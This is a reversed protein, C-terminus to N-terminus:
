IHLEILQQPSPPLPIAPKMSFGAEQAMAAYEKATYADGHQTTGLMMYAFAAPMPPSIRDDNPVFEIVLVRGQPSLGDRVRRLLTICTPADFHHLFNPLLVLDYDAGWDVTFADGAVTRHRAGVGMQTANRAAIAVVDAWDVATIEADPCAQAVSIGFMGGGAAIDLVRRPHVLWSAIVAAAAKAGSATFPTMCEAFTVWVPDDPAMNALGETGGRRVYSAPDDLYLRLVEPGALFRAISALSMPSNRDIFTRSVPTQTWTQGSKELFGQLTLFDCLIRVGRPSAGVKRGIAEADLADPGIADFLGLEIASLMASTKQFAMLTDVFAMPTLPVTQADTLM